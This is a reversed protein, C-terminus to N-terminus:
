CITFKIIIQGSDGEPHGVSGQKIYVMTNMTISAHTFGEPIVRATDFKERTKRNAEQVNAYTAM